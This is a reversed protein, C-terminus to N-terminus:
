TLLDGSAVWLNTGRKILTAMSWQTRLKLGPTSNITVTGTGNSEPVITIQGTGTQLVVIYTGTPFGSEADTPITLNTSSSSNIEIMKSQDNTVSNGLTGSPGVLKYSTTKANTGITQIASTLTKNTLTQTGSITAVEVPDGSTIGNYSFLKGDKSVYAVIASSTSWQQLNVQQDIEGQIQLPIIFKTLPKIRNITAPVDNSEPVAKIFTANLNSGVTTELSSIRTNISSPNSYPWGIATEITAARDNINMLYKEISNTAPSGTLGGQHYYTLAKVIDANDSLSPITTTYTSGVNQTM